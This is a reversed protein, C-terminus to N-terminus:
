CLTARGTVHTMVNGDYAVENEASVKLAGNKVVEGDVTVM